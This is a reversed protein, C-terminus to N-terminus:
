GPKGHQVHGELTASKISTGELGIQQRRKRSLGSAVIRHSEALYHKLDEEGLGPDDYRQIWKMGRAALYPAPRLGPMGRLIEYSIDSTKFTIGPVPGDSWGCIAFVKGGVKWVDSGGWQVIRSTAPLGACFSNFNERTM